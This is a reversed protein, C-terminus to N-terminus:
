DVVVLVFPIQGLPCIILPDVPGRDRICHWSCELQYGGPLPRVLGHWTETRGMYQQDIVISLYKDQQPGGTAQSKTLSVGKAEQASISPDKSQHSSDKMVTTLRSSSLPEKNCSADHCRGIRRSLSMRCCGELISCQPLRLVLTRLIQNCNTISEAHQVRM